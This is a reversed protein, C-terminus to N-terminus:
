EGDDGHAERATPSSMPSDIVVYQRANIVVEHITQLSVTVMCMHAYLDWRSTEKERMRVVRSAGKCDSSPGDWM